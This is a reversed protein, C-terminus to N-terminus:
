LGELKKEVLPRLVDDNKPSGVGKPWGLRACCNACRPMGMRSIVGPIVWRNRLGCTSVGDAQWDADVTEPNEITALHHLREGAVIATYVWDWEAVEAFKPDTSM